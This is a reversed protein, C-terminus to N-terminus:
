TSMEQGIKAPNCWFEKVFECVEKGVIDWSKQYFGAPYGDPGPAKWPKMAFLAKRIEVDKVPEVLKQIDSESLSSFSIVFTEKDKWDYKLTFLHKYFNTVLDHLKEKDEVWSGDDDKLMTIKNRRRRNIAKLHYYRTNLDGDALWQTRSRQFWTLEEKKLINSLELHLRKELKMLGVNNFKRQMSIQVGNLRAMIEKKRGIVQDFTHVKWSQIKHKVNQLNAQLNEGEKWTNSLMVAYDTNTMWASEFKFARPVKQQVGVKTTLLPHHDSFDVRTLVKAQADPFEVMREESSLIRDLKEYIRQGGHFLPGRWTYKPGATELHILNCNNIRDRFLKCKRHCVPAGGKKDLSGAVDNFDGTLLWPKTM